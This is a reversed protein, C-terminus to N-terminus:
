RHQQLWAHIAGAVSVDRDGFSPLSAQTGNRLQLTVKTGPERSVALVDEHGYSRSRWLWVTEVETGHIEIRNRFVVALVLMIAAVSLFLARDAAPEVAVYAVCAVSGVKTVVRVILPYAFVVPGPRTMMGGM